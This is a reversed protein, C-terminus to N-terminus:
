RNLLDSLTLEYWVKSAVREQQRDIWPQWDPHDLQERIEASVSEPGSVYAANVEELKGAARFQRVTGLVDPSLMTLEYLRIRSDPLRALAVNARLIFQEVPLVTAVAFMWMFLVVLFKLINARRVAFMRTILWVFLVACFIVVYAAFVKEYSFGYYTVYLVMRHGASALLLLSAATFATLIHQVAPITRRYTLFFIAINIVSLFFLQWFGSKVLYVTEAFDFPLSGVWLKELQVGLFLLYLLLTGGLVIGTVIPDIAKLDEIRTEEFHLSRGWALLGTLTVTALFLGFLVRAAITTDFLSRFWDLLRDTRAAFAADASSLLPLVITLAIVFFLALGVLVRKTTSKRMGAGQSLLRGFDHFAQPIFAVASLARLVIRSILRADWTLRRGGPITELIYFGIALAPLVLMTIVKLFPNDYLCFSLCMLGVPVIWYLNEKLSAGRERLLWLFLSVLLFLYVAASLGLADPGHEWFGWVSCVWFASVALSGLIKILSVHSLRSEPEHTHDEM